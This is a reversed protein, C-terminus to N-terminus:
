TLLNRNVESFFILTCGRERFLSAAWHSVEGQIGILDLIVM